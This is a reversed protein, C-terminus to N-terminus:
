DYMLGEEKMSLYSRHRTGCAHGIVLHDIVEIGLLKGADVLKRTSKIDENSPTPDGSPHNHALLVKHCNHHIASRFVERAHIHSRDLLGKTIQVKKIVYNKTDLLVVHFEEQLRPQLQPVLFKAADEPGSIRVGEPADFSLLRRALTFAAVIEAAKAPGIGKMAVLEAHTAKSLTLLNNDFRKLLRKAMMTVPEDQFGNRMVIALLESNSLADAGYHILRERPRDELATEKIKINGPM